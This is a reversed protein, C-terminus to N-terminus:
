LPFEPPSVDIAPAGFVEEATSVQAAKAAKAQKAKEVKIAEAMFEIMKEAQEHTLDKTSEVKFKTMLLAKKGKAQNEKTTKKLKSFEGLQANFRIIQDKDIMPEDGKVERVVSPESQVDEYEEKGYSVVGRLVEPVDFRILRSIAHWRLKDRPAFKFARSNLKTLEAATSTYDYSLGGNHQYTGSFEADFIGNKYLNDCFRYWM